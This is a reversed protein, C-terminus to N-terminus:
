DRRLFVFWVTLPYAALLLGGAVRGIRGQVVALIIVVVFSTMMAALPRHLSATDVLALPRALAAAGLTMTM